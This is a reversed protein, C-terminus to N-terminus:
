RRRVKGPSRALPPSPRDARRGQAGGEALRRALALLRREIRRLRQLDEVNPYSQADGLLDHYRVTHTPGAGARTALVSTCADRQTRDVFLVGEGSRAASERAAREAAARAAAGDIARFRQEDLVFRRLSALEDAVLRHEGGGMRGSLVVRGDDHVVIDAPPASGETGEDARGWAILVGAETEAEM